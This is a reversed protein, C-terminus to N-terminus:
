FHIAGSCESSAGHPEGLTPSDCVRNCSGSACAGPDSCSAGLPLKEACTNSLTECYAAPACRDCPQGIASYPSCTRADRCSLGADCVVDGLCASGAGPGRVCKGGVCALGDDVYCDAWNSVNTLDVPPEGELRGCDNAARCTRMCDEDVRARRTARCVNLCSVTAGAVPACERESECAGGTAVTGVLIRNCPEREVGACTPLASRLNALCADAATQDFRVATTSPRELALAARTSDECAARNFARTELGCCAELGDCFADVFATAFRAEANENAPPEEPEPSGCAAFGAVAAFLGIGHSWVRKKARM